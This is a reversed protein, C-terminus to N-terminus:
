RQANTRPVALFRATDRPSRWSPLKERLVRRWALTYRIPPGLKPMGRQFPPANAPHLRLAICRYGAGIRVAARYPNSCGTFIPLSPGGGDGDAPHKITTPIPLRSVPAAGITKRDPSLAYGEGPAVPYGAISSDLVRGADKNGPYALILSMSLYRGRGVRSM